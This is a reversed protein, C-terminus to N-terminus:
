LTQARGTRHTTHPSPCGSLLKEHAPCERNSGNRDEDKSADDFEDGRGAPRGSDRAIRNLSRHWDIVQFGPIGPHACQWNFVRRLRLRPETMSLGATIWLPRCRAVAARFDFIEHDADCLTDGCRRLCDDILNRKGPLCFHLAYRCHHSIHHAFSPQTGEFGRLPRQQKGAHRDTSEYRQQEKDQM